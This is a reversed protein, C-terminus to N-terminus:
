QDFAHLLASPRVLLRDRRIIKFLEALRVRVVKVPVVLRWQQNHVRVLDIEDVRGLMEILEDLLDGIRLLSRLVVYRKSGSYVSRSPPLFDSPHPIFSSDSTNM